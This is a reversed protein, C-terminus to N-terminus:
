RFHTANEWITYGYPKIIMCGRVASYDALGAKLVIDNYWQSYDKSRPTIKKNTLTQAMIKKRCLYEIIKLKSNKTGVSATSM